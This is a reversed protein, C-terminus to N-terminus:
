AAVRVHALQREARKTNAHKAATNADNAYQAAANVTYRGCGADCTNVAHHHNDYREDQHRRQHQSPPTM